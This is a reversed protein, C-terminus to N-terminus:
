MQPAAPEQRRMRKKLLSAGQNSADLPASAAPSEADHETDPHSAKGGKSALKQCSNKPNINIPNHIM